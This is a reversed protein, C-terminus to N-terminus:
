KWVRTERKTKEKQMVLQKKQREL